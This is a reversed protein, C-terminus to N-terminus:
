QAVREADLRCTCEPFGQYCSEARIAADLAMLGSVREEGEFPEPQWFHREDRKEKNRKDFAECADTWGTWYEDHLVDYGALWRRLRKM